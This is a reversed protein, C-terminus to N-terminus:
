ELWFALAALVGLVGLAAALLEPRWRALLEPSDLEIPELYREVAIPRFLKTQPDRSERPATM